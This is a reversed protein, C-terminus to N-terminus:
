EESEPCLGLDEALRQVMAGIQVLELLGMDPSRQERKLRCWEWFEDVEELIVAYGEHASNLPAHLNRARRLEAAVLASFLRETALKTAKKDRM